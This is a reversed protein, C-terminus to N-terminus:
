IVDEVSIRVYAMLFSQLDGSPASQPSASPGLASMARLDSAYSGSIYFDGLRVTVHSSTM